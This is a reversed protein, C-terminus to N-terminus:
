QVAQAGEASPQGKSGRATAPQVTTAGAHIPIRKTQARVQESKPLVVTLIGRDFKAEVKEEQIETAIPIRREFSGYRREEFRGRGRRFTRAEEERKEGRVVLQGPELLIEVENEALGPLEVYVKLQREDEELDIQPVFAYAPTGWLPSVGPEWLDGVMSDMMRQLVRPISLADESLGRLRRIPLDSLAM